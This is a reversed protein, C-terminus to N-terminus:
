LCKLHCEKIIQGAFHTALSVALPNVHNKHLLLWPFLGTGCYQMLKLAIFGM